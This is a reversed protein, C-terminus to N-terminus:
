SLRRAEFANSIYKLFLLVLVVPKYEASDIYRRLKDTAAWLKEEFGPTAGNNSKSNRKVM